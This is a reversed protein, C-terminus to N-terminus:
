YTYLVKRKKEKNITVKKKKKDITVPGCVRSPMELATLYFVLLDYVLYGGIKSDQKHEYVFDTFNTCGIIDSNLFKYNPKDIWSKITNPNYLYRIWLDYLGMEKLFRSAIRLAEKKNESFSSM